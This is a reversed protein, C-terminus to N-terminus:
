LSMKRVLFPTIVLTMLAHRPGLSLVAVVKLFKRITLKFATIVRGKAGRLLILGVGQDPWLLFKEAPAGLYYFWYKERM